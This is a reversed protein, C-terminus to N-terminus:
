QKILTPVRGIVPIAFLLTLDEESHVNTDFAVVAICIVYGLIFGILSGMVTNVIINPSSPTFSVKAYDIVEAGGGHVVRIIEKPAIEVITNVILQAMNPDCYTVSVEFAETEDIAGATLLERIDSATMSLNLKKIVQDLVTDSRLVIIYTKVLEQSAILDFSTIQDQMRNTNSYVYLSATATYLPTILYKSVSFSLGGCFLILFLIFLFRKKLILLLQWFNLERYKMKNGRNGYITKM